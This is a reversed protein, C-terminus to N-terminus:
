QRHSARDQQISEYWEDKYQALFRDTVRAAARVLDKGDVDGDVLWEHHEDQGVDHVSPLEQLAAFMASSLNSWYPDVKITEAAGCGVVWSFRDSNRFRHADISHLEKISRSYDEGLVRVWLEAIETDDPIAREIQITAVDAPRIAAVGSEGVDNGAPLLGGAFIVTCLLGFAVVFYGVIEGLTILWVGATLFTLGVALRGVTILMDKM